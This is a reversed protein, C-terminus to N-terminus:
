RTGLWILFLGIVTIGLTAGWFGLPDKGKTITDGTKLPVAGKVMAYAAGAIFLGGVLIALIRLMVTRPVDRRHPLGELLQIERPAKLREGIDM